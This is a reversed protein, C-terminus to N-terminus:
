KSGTFNETLHVDPLYGEPRPQGLNVNYRNLSVQDESAGDESPVTLEINRNEMWFNYEKELSEIRSRIFELDKTAEYYRDMMPLLMPPQSRNTYYIRGGNPIHGVRSLFVIQIDM